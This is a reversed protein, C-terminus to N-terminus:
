YPKRSKLEQYIQLYNEYRERSLRGEAAATKVACDREGVHVCDPFRCQGQLSVFEPYYERLQGCEVQELDLATFGPTDMLYTEPGLCFLESHRTTHRGRGLKESVAGTEMGAEPQLRNMLSSKGVGFPGALVTTKGALAQAFVAIGRDEQVSLFYLPYGSDRYIGRLREERAGEPDLDMKNFCLLVPLGRVEMSVLLRDLLNLNPDPSTLSFVVAAQDLNAAAPRFLENDRPLIEEINGTGEEESDSLVTFEVRDGPLPKVGRSRFIGKARCEYIRSGGDHVYYFGGIGKIIRGQM